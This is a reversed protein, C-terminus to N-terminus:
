GIRYVDLMVAGKGPALSSVFLAERLWQHPGDPADFRPAARMYVEGEAVPEGARLRALAEASSVRLGVNHVYIPVGDDTLITYHAEIRSNGDPGIVPWDSGGPLINGNLCSGSVTGGTIAIHLREGLVGKGASVPAAIRAEISFCYDLTPVPPKM